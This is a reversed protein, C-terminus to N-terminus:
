QEEAVNLKMLMKRGTKAEERMPHGCFIARKSRPNNKLEEM